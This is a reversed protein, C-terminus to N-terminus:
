FLKGLRPEDALKKIVSDLRRKLQENLKRLGFTDAVYSGSHDSYIGHKGGESPKRFDKQNRSRIEENEAKLNSTSM